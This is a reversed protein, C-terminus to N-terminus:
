RTRTTGAARSWPHACFREVCVLEVFEKQILSVDYWAPPLGFIGGVKSCKVQMFAYDIRM